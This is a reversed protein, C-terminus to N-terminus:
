VEDLEVRARHSLRKWPAVMLIIAITATMYNALPIATITGNIGWIKSFIWILPILFGITRMFNLVLARKYYGVTNMYIGFVFVLALAPYGFVFVRLFKAAMAASEGDGFLGTLRTGVVFVAVSAAIMWIETTVVTQTLTKRVRRFKSAGWNYGAISQMAQTFGFVPLTFFQEITIAIAWAGIAFDGGHTAMIGNVIFAYVAFSVNVLLPSAGYKGIKSMTSIKPPAFKFKVVSHFFSTAVMLFVVFMSIATAMGAGAIGMGMRIVFVYALLINLSIGTVSNIMARIPRGMSRVFQNLGISVMDFGIGFFLITLYTRALPLTHASAGSATLIESMFISGFLLYTGVFIIQMWITNRFIRNAKDIDGSGLRMSFMTNGGTGCFVNLALYFMIMPAAVGLAAIGTDGLVRGIFFRDTATYIVGVLLTIISPLAFKWLLGSIPAAGLRTTESAIKNKNEM